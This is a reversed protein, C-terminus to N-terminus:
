KVWYTDATIDFSYQPVDGTKEDANSARSLSLSRVDSLELSRELETLFRKFNPYDTQFSFSIQLVKSSISQSPTFVPAGSMQGADESSQPAQTPAAGATSTDTEQFDFGELTIGFINAIGNVDRALQVGRAEEPLMKELRDWDDPTFSSYTELLRGRIIRAENANNIAQEYQTKEVRLSQITAYRPRLFGILTWISAVIM